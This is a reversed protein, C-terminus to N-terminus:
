DSGALRASRYASAPFNASDQLALAMPWLVLIASIAMLKCLAATPGDIFHMAAVATLMAGFARGQLSLCALLLLLLADIACPLTALGSPHAM